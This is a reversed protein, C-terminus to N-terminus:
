DDVAAAGVRRCFITLFPLRVDSKRLAALLGAWIVPVGFAVSVQEESLLRLLSDGDLNPGPLVLRAGAMAAIFPTGRM